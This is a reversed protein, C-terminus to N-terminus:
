MTVNLGSLTIHFVYVVTHLIQLLNMPRFELTPLQQVFDVRDSLEKEQMWVSGFVLLCM